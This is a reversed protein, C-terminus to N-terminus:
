PITYSLTRWGDPVQAAAIVSVANPLGKAINTMASFDSVGRSNEVVQGGSGSRRPWWGVPAVAGFAHGAQLRHFFRQM